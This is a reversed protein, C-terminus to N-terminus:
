ISDSQLFSSQLLPHPLVPDNFWVRQSTNQQSVEGLFVLYGSNKLIAGCKLAMDWLELSPM